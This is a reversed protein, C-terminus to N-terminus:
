NSAVNEAGSGEVEINEMTVPIVPNEADISGALENQAPLQDKSEVKEAQDANGAREVPPRVQKDDMMRVAVVDSAPIKGADTMFAGSPDKLDVGIVKIRTQVPIPVEQGEDSTATISFTYSGDKLRQGDTGNGSWRLEQEGPQLQGLSETAVISGSGDRVEVTAGSVPRDVNFSVQGPNGNSIVARGGEVTVERGVYDLMGFNRGNNQGKLMETLTKNVNLMQELGNFQALQAAMQASDDPKLPDQNQLQAIFLKLFDDKDLQTKPGRQPNAKENMMRFFDEDNKAVSLDGKKSAAREKAVDTNSEILLNKFTADGEGSFVKKDSSADPAPSGGGKGQYPNIREQLSARM